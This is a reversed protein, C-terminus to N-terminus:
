PTQAQKKSYRGSLRFPDFFQFDKKIYKDWLNLFYQLVANIFVPSFNDVGNRTCILIINHLVSKRPKGLTSFIYILCVKLKLRQTDRAKGRSKSRGRRARLATTSSVEPFAERSMPKGTYKLLPKDINKRKM